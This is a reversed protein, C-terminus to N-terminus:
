GPPTIEELNELDQYFRIMLQSLKSGENLRFIKTQKGLPEEAVLGIKVLDKIVRSVSSHSLGTEEALGSLYTIKGRNKLLTELVAIRANRGLAEALIGM